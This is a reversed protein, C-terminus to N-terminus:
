QPTSIKAHKKSMIGKDLFMIINIKLCPKPTKM